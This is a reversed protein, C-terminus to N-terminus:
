ESQLKQAEVVDASVHSMTNAVVDWDYAKGFGVVYRGKTPVLKFLKFDDLGALLSVTQGHKARMLEIIPTKQAGDNLQETDVQIVARKRAYVNKANAESEIFMLSAKPNAQMNRTHQALESVLVYFCGHVRVYPSFSALPEANESVTSLLVSDFGELLALCDTMEKSNDM